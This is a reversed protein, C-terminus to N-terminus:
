TIAKIVYFSSNVRPAADFRTWAKLGIIDAAFQQFPHVGVEIPQREIVAYHGWRGLVMCATSCGGVVICPYGGIKGDALLAAGGSIWARQRAIEAAAATVVWVLPADGGGAEVSELAAAIHTAGLTTGAANPVAADNVFGDLQGSAGSGELIQQQAKVRIANAALDILSRAGHPSQLAWQKSHELMVGVNVPAATTVSSEPASAAVQTTEDAQVTAPPLTNWRGITANGFRADPRQVDCLALFSNSAAPVGTPQQVSTSVIGSSSSILTRGPFYSSGTLRPRVGWAKALLDSDEKERPAALWDQEGSARLGRADSYEDDVKGRLAMEARYAEFAQEMLMRKDRGLKDADAAKVLLATEPDLGAYRRKTEWYAFERENM